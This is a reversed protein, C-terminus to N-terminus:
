MGDGFGSLARNRGQLSRVAVDLGNGYDRALRHKLDNGRPKFSELDLFPSPTYAEVIAASNPGMGWFTKLARRPWSKVFHPHFENGAEEIAEKM